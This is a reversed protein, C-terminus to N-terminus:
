ESGLEADMKRGWARLREIEAEGAENGAKTIASVVKSRIVSPKLAPFEDALSDIASRMGEFTVSVNESPAAPASPKAKAKPGRKAKPKPEQAPIMEIGRNLLDAEQNEM